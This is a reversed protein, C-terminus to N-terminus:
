EDINNLCKSLLLMRVLINEYSEGRTLAYSRLKELTDEHLKIATYKGEDVKVSPMENGVDQILRNVLGDYSISDDHSYQKILDRNYSNIGISKM